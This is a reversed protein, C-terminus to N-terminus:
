ITALPSYAGPEFSKESKIKFALDAPASVTRASGDGGSLMVMTLCIFSSSKLALTLRKMRAASGGTHDCFKALVAIVNEKRGAPVKGCFVGFDRLQVFCM